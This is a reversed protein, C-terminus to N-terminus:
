ESYLSAWQQRLDFFATTGLDQLVAFDLDGAIEAPADVQVLIRETEIDQIRATVPGTQGFRLRTSIRTASLDLQADLIEVQEDRSTICKALMGTRVEWVCTEQIGTTEPYTVLRQGSLAFSAGSATAGAPPRLDFQQLAVLSDGQVSWENLVYNAVPDGARQVTWLRRDDDFVVDILADAEFDTKSALLAPSDTRWIYLYEGAFAVMRQARANIRVEDMRDPASIDFSSGPAGSTPLTIVTLTGAAFGLCDCLVALDGQADFAASRVSRADDVVYIGPIEDPQWVLLSRGSNLLARKQTPHIARLTNIGATADFPYAFFLTDSAISRRDQYHSRVRYLLTDLTVAIRNDEYVMTNPPVADFDTFISDLNVAREIVFGEEFSSNDEWFFTVRGPSSSEYRFQTAPSPINQGLFYDPDRPNQRIPEVPGECGMWAMALVLLFWGTHRGHTPCPTAMNCRAFFLAAM